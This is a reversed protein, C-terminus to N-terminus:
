IVLDIPNAESGWMDSLLLRIRYNNLKIIKQEKKAADTYTDKLKKDLEKKFQNIKNLYENVDKIASRSLAVNELLDVFFTLSRLNQERGANVYERLLYSTFTDFDFNLSKEFVEETDEPNDDDSYLIRKKTM